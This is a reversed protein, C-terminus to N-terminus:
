PAIGTVIGSGTPGQFPLRQIDKIGANVLMNIIQEESYSRGNDTALLMNLSFLASFLPGDMTNYLIFDHVIIMGGPELAAVAKKVIRQCDGPGEAHLVHSLWVVDCSRRIEEELYNGAVFSIRDSLKFRNIIKEAFTRTTPLDYVTAKLQPNNLCFYIAYTGPGGGLDLLHHRGSLDIEKAIAPATISATNFMGMIFSERAEEDSFSSRPRVPEGTKIAQDLQSWANVLHHHHMIMYGAYGPSDKCLFTRSASTNSYGTESRSLLRMAALANLLMSVGREDAGLKGSIEACGLSEDGVATFLDLKVAAHLACTQWFNGSVELLKGPTWDEIDM